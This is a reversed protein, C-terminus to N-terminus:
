LNTFTIKEALLPAIKFCGFFVSGFCIATIFLFMIISGVGLSSNSFIIGLSLLLFIATIIPCIRSMIESDDPDPYIGEEIVEEKNPVTNIPLSINITFVVLFIYVTYIVVTLGSYWVIDSIPIKWGKSTQGITVILLILSVVPAIVHWLFRKQFAVATHFLVKELLKKAKKM